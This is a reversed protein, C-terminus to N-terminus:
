TNEDSDELMTALTSPDDFAAALVSNKIRALGQQSVAGDSNFFEGQETPSLVEKAYEKVFDRNQASNIDFDGRFRDIINASTLRKADRGARETVSMTAQAETNSLDAFEQLDAVTM